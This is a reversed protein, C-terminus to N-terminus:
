KKFLFEIPIDIRKSWADESHNEGPFFKTMWNSKNYGKQTMLNDVKKQIDPYLADLTQDGCDFYIKHNDPNPLNMRLYSIFAAPVPNNDLTFTGPWHTSLCAAGGFTDPYECIAYWSILGGMSSGAVFTNEKKTLVSYNKDIYPKLEEVIFKLYNDSQPKFTNKLPVHSRKLQNNVTDLESQTLSEFPKQPFYDSHRTEGGNWIGVIIFDKISNNEILKTAADDVNWAQKNWGQEPDYLMQGDHMYLVSYKKESSYNEPLWIDINRSTVYKSNFNEIRDLTGSVVKPLENQSEIVIKQGPKGLPIINDVDSLKKKADEVQQPFLHYLAYMKFDIEKGQKKADRLIWSPGFVWDINKVKCITDSYSADGSIYIRKGHWTILYSYHKFPINFVKHETKFAEITFDPLTENLENLKKINFVGYKQGGKEKLVKRLLKRSFHDAHKHTFLFISNEKIDDLENEDYEMYQYAGSKYPFDVYINTVGDTLYLGCNGKFEIEIEGSKSYGNFTIVTLLISTIVGVNMLKMFELKLLKISSIKRHRYVTSLYVDM